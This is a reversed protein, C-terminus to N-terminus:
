LYGVEYRQLFVLFGGFVECSYEGSFNPVEMAERSVDHGITIGPEWGHGTGPLIEEGDCSDAWPHGGCEVGLGISLGFSDVM